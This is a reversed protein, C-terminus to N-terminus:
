NQECACPGLGLGAFSPYPKRKIVNCRETQRSLESAMCDKGQTPTKFLGRQLRSNVPANFGIPATQGRVLYCNSGM